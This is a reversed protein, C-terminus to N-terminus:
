PASTVVRGHVIDGEATYVLETDPSLIIIRYFDNEAPDFRDHIVFEFLHDPAGNWAGRGQVIVLYAGNLSCTAFEVQGVFRDRRLRVGRSTTVWRPPTWHLWHGAVEEQPADTNDSAAFGWFIDGGPQDGLAGLVGLGTAWCAPEFDLGEGFARAQPAVLILALVGFVISIRFTM